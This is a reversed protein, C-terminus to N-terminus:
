TETKFKALSLLQRSWVQLTIIFLIFIVLLIITTITMSCFVNYYRMRENPDKLLFSFNLLPYSLDGLIM